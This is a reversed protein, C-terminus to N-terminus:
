HLIERSPGLYWPAKVKVCPFPWKLCTHTRPPAHMTDLIVKNTPYKPPPIPLFCCNSWKPVSARPKQGSPRSRFSPPVVRNLSSRDCTPCEFIDYMWMREMGYAVGLGVLRPVAVVSRVPMLLRGTQKERITRPSVPSTIVGRLDPWMQPENAWRRVSRPLANSPIDREIEDYTGRPTESSNKVSGM